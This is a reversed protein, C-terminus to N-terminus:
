SRSSRMQYEHAQRLAAENAIDHKRHRLLRGCFYIFVGVAFLSSAWDAFPDHEAGWIAPITLFGTGGAVAMGVRETANFWSRWVTLKWAVILMIGLRAVTNLIVWTTIM